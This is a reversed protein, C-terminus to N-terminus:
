RRGSGGRVQGGRTQGGTQGGRPGVSGPRGFFQGRQGPHDFRRNSSHFGHGRRAAVTSSQFGTVFPFSFPGLGFPSMCGNYISLPNPMCGYPNGYGPAEQQYMEPAYNNAYNYITAAPQPVVVPNLVAPNWAAPSLYAAERRIADVVIAGRARADSDLVAQLVPAPVGAQALTALQQGTLDFLQDSAAVWAAVAGPDIRRTADVIEDVTIPVAASARATTAALRLREIVRVTAVPVVGPARVARLRDVMNISGGGSRVQEVRLFDGTPVFAFVTTSSGPADGTCEYSSQFFV